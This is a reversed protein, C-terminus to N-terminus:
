GHDLAIIKHQKWVLEMSWKVSYVILLSSYPFLNNLSYCHLEICDILLLYLPCHYSTQQPNPQSIPHCTNQHVPYSFACLRPRDGWFPYLSFLIFLIQLSLMAPMFVAFLWFICMFLANIFKWFLPLNHLEGKACIYFNQTKQVSLTQDQRDTLRYQKVPFHKTRPM